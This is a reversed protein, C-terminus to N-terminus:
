NMLFVKSLIEEFCLVNIGFYLSKNGEGNIHRKVCFKAFFVKDRSFM